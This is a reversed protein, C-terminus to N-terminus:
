LDSRVIALLVLVLVLVLVLLIVLSIVIIVIVAIVVVAIGIVGVVLVVVRWLLEGRWRDVGASAGECTRGVRAVDNGLWDL